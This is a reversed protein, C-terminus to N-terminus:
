SHMAIHQALRMARWARSGDPDDGAEDSWGRYTHDYGPYKNNIAAVGAVSNILDDHQGPAHDISDRGSRSTRRELGLLQTILKPHDLLEIRASNILPLLDTYLSSKPAASAEYLINFRGFQEAPWLGAYKDGSVTVIGYSRLLKSFEEVVTEPSFPPLRERLCDIVITQRAIDNHGICLTMSDSSGGSPDCFAAYSEGRMPPRERVGVSICATVAERLVFAELDSRFHAFYEAAARTPDDAVHQDIYSQPVSPNMDRTAAQWVLIPDSDQGYHRRHADWLAGRRAHPSSACLLIADPITAMAPRIANVVQVDPEASMEDTPWFALEDLLAAVVSYGRTSRWSATHVEIVVRNRLEITERTEGEILPALMPVGTLLGRVYRMIVRAQKRDAAIVMVTGVEGPGLFPRWDRFCALFVAITALVFSKGGRRGIVLWAERSPGPPPATRGTFQHYLALQSDTLSLGFLVALFCRWADWTSSRFFRGFVQPDDMAQLINM